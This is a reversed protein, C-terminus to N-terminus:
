SKLIDYKGMLYKSAKMNIWTCKLIDLIDNFVKFEKM